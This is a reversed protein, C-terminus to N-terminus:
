QPLPQKIAAFGGGCSSGNAPSTDARTRQQLLVPGVTPLSLVTSVIVDGSLLAPLLYGITSIFPNFALRVPYKFVLKWEAVGKARASMVYQKRLEDLLNNRMIRILAATGATGLVISPAILHRLMNVFKAWTWPQNLYEPSYLGGIEWGFVLAGLWLFILALLFNPVALGLFGIFTVAYDQPTNHHVASYIGMPISLTWTFLIAGLALILTNTLRDGVVEAIPRSFEFSMGWNGTVMRQLWKLYQIAVPQDLGFDARLQAELAPDGLINGSAGAGQGAGLLTQVYHDAFDGPPLQVVLFAVLSIALSTIVAYGIRRRSLEGQHAADRAGRAATVLLRMHAVDAAYEACRREYAGRTKTCVLTYPRGVRETEHLIDLGHGDIIGHVHRRLEKRLPLRLITEAPDACFARLRRCSACSCSVADAEILWDRPTEPPEASRALLCDAAHRWLTEFGAPKMAGQTRHHAALGALAQPVARDPTAAAPHRALLVAAEEAEDALEGHWILM